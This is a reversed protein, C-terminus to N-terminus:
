PMAVGHCAAQVLARRLPPVSQIMSMGISKVHKAAVHQIGFMQQLAHIGNVTLSVQAQRSTEYENLFTSLDMGADVAYKVVSVLNDVDQLGLNLGQGAMPHVTHAADGVLALRPLTYRAAQGSSLPFSFQQSAIEVIEPPAVFPGTLEQAGMAAGYQATEVLKDLGELLSAIPSPLASSGNQATSSFIPALLGPGEAFLENLTAVLTSPITDKLETVIAPLTSWVVIAHHNSFTPLLAIPGTSLFRQFARGKHPQQLKVTFTLATQGYDFKSVSIGAMSRIQSHGGDAAVLLRTQLQRHQPPTSSYGGGVRQEELDISVLGSQTSAPLSISSVKANTYLSCNDYEQLQPWLREILYQDEVVAGLYNSSSLDDTADFLLTAPQNAEWVQMSQYYGHRSSSDTTTDNDVGLIQLSAPSLAYSRPHPPKPNDALSSSSSSSNTSPMPGSRAKEVLGISLTPTQQLLQRALACGVVGGGVILVDLDETRTSTSFYCDCLQQQQQQTSRQQQQRARPGVVVFSPAVRRRQRRLTNRCLHSRMRELHIYYRSEITTLLELNALERRARNDIVPWRPSAQFPLM